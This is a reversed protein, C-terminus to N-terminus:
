DNSDHVISDQDNPDGAGNHRPRDTEEQDISIVGEAQMKALKRPNVKPPSPRRIFVGPGRTRPPNKRKGLARSGKSPHEEHAASNWSALTVEDDGDTAPRAGGEGPYHDWETIDIVSDDDDDVDAFKRVASESITQAEQM